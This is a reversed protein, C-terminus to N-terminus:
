EEPIFSRTNRTMGERMKIINNLMIKQHSTYKENIEAIKESDGNMTAIIEETQYNMTEIMGELFWAPIYDRSIFNLLKADQKVEARLSGFVTLQAVFVAVMIGGIWQFAKTTRALKGLEIKTEESM